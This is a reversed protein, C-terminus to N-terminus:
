WGSSKNLKKEVQNGKVDYGINKEGDYWKLPV